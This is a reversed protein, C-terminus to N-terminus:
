SEGGVSELIVQLMWTQEDRGGGADATVAGFILRFPPGNARRESPRDTSADPHRGAGMM